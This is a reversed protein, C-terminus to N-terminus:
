VYSAILYFYICPVATLLNFEKFVNKCIKLQKLNKKISGGIEIAEAWNCLAWLSIQMYSCYILTACQLLALLLVPYLSSNSLLLDFISLSLSCSFSHLFTEDSLYPRLLVELGWGQQGRQYSHHSTPCVSRPLLTHSLPLSYSWWASRIAHVCYSCHLSSYSVIAACTGSANMTGAVV